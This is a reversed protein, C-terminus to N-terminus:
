HENTQEEEAPISLIDKRYKFVKILDVAQVTVFNVVYAFIALAIMFIIIAVGLGILNWYFTDM